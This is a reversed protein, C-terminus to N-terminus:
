CIRDSGEPLTPRVLPPLPEPLVGKARRWMLVAEAILWVQLLEVLVGMGVLLWQGAPAYKFVINHVMAWAPLVLMLVMPLALFWVPKNHRILYFAIVLFAIGALLQNIAGFLPWLILGGSGPGAPGPTLALAGGAGVAVATAVYKNTLAPFRIIGGLEQLVYRQLSRFLM